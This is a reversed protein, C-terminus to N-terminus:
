NRAYYTTDVKESCYQAVLKLCKEGLNPPGSSYIDFTCFISICSSFCRRATKMTGPPQDRQLVLAFQIINESIQVTPWDQQLAALVISTVISFEDVSLTKFVQGLSEDIEKQGTSTIAPYLTVYTAVVWEWHSMSRRHEGGSAQLLIIAFMDLRMQDSAAPTRGIKQGLKYETEFVEKDIM